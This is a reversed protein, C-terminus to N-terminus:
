PMKGFSSQLPERLPFIEYITGGWNSAIREAPGVDRFYRQITTTQERRNEVFYLLPQKLLASPANALDPYRYIDDVQIVKLRPQYYHLLATTEYDTTVVAGAHIAQTVSALIQAAQPFGRALM